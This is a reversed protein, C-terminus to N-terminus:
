PRPPPPTTNLHATYRESLFLSTAVLLGIESMTVVWTDTPKSFDLVSGAVLALLVPQIVLTAAAWGLLVRPLVAASALVVVVPYVVILVFFFGALFNYGEPDGNTASNVRVQGAGHLLERLQDGGM